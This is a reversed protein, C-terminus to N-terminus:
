QAPPSGLPDGRGAGAGLAPPRPLLCWGMQLGRHTCASGDGPGEEKAKKSPWSSYRVTVWGRLRWCRSRGGPHAGRGGMRIYGIAMPDKDASGRHGETLEGLDPAVDTDSKM